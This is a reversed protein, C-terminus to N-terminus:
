QSLTPANRTFTSAFRRLARRPSASPRGGVAAAVAVRANDVPQLEHPEQGCGPAGEALQERGRVPLHRFVDDEDLADARAVRAM